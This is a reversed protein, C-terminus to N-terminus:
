VPFLYELLYSNLYIYIPILSLREKPPLMEVLISFISVFITGFLYYNKWDEAELLNNKIDSALQKTNWFYM